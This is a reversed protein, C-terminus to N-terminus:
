SAAEEGHVGGPLGRGEELREKGHGNQDEEQRGRHVEEPVARGLAGVLDGQDQRRSHRDEDADPEAVRPLLELAPDDAADRERHPRHEDQQHHTREDAGPDEGPDNGGHDVVAELDEARRDEVRGGADDAGEDGDGGARRPRGGRGDADGEDPHGGGLVQVEAEGGSGDDGPGVEAVLHRREAVGGVQGRRHRPGLQEDVNAVHHPGGDGAEDQGKDAERDDAPHARDGLLGAVEVGDEGGELLAEDDPGVEQQRRREHQHQDPAAHGGERGQQDAGEDPRDEREDELGPGDEVKTPSVSRGRSRARTFPQQVASNAPKVRFEPFAARSSSRERPPMALMSLVTQSMRDAIINPATISVVFISSFSAALTREITLLVPVRMAAVSAEDAAMFTTAESWYM